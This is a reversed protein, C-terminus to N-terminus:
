TGRVSSCGVPPAWSRQNGMIGLVGSVSTVQACPFRIKDKLDVSYSSADKVTM